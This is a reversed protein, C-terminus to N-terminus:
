GVPRFLSAAAIRALEREYRKRGADGSGLPPAIVESLAVAGIVLKLLHIVYATLDADEHVRNGNQGGRLFGAIADVAPVVARVLERAEAPRDLAERAIFRARDPEAAIFRYIESFVEDFRGHSAAAGLLLAPLRESWDHLISALVARRLQEKSSFHHLLAAKTLGVEAAIAQIPTGDSGREAFLRLAAAVIREPTPHTAPEHTTSMTMVGDFSAVTTSVSV